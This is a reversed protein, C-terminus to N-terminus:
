GRRPRGIMALLESKMAESTWRDESESEKEEGGRLIDSMTILRAIGSAEAETSEEAAEVGLGEGRAPEEM